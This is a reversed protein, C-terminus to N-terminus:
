VPSSDMRRREGRADLRTGIRVVTAIKRPASEVAAWVVCFGGALGAGACGLVVLGAGDVAFGAVAFGAAGSDALGAAGGGCSTRKLVAYVVPSIFVSLTV